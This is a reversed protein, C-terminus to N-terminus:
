NMKKLDVEDLFTAKFVLEKGILALNERYGKRLEQVRPDYMLCGVQCEVQSIQFKIYKQVLVLLEGEAM